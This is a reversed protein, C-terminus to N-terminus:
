KGGGGLRAPHTFVFDSQAVPTHCAVCEQAFSADKGYPVLDMGKWRAFGWGLTAAFKVKDKRMFEVQMFDGPVFAGPFADLPVRKWSVKALVSGDPWPNTNGARAAAIAVDNGLITRLSNNDERHSVALVRWNPYDPYFVIGNPAPAVKGAGGQGLAMGVTVALLFSAGALWRVVNSIM